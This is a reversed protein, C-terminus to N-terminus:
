GWRGRAMSFVDEVVFGNYTVLKIKYDGAELPRTLSVDIGITDGRGWYSGNHGKGFDYTWYNKEGISKHLVRLFPTKANKDALREKDKSIIFIDSTEVLNLPIENQGTNKLWIHVHNGEPYVFIPEIDTLARENMNSMTSDFAGTMQFIAPFVASMLIVVGTVGAIILLATTIVNNAM